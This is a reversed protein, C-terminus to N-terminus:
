FVKLLNTTSQCLLHDLHVQLILCYLCRLLMNFYFLLGIHVDCVCVKVEVIIIHLFKPLRIPGDRLFVVQTAGRGAPVEIARVQRVALLYRHFAKVLLPLAHALQVNVVPPASVWLVLNRELSFPVVHHLLIIAAEFDM